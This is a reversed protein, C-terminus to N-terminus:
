GIKMSTHCPGDAKAAAPAPHAQKFKDTRVKREGVRIPVAWNQRAMLGFVVLWTLKIPYNSSDLLIYSILFIFICSLIDCFCKKHGTTLISVIFWRLLLSPMSWSSIWDIKLFLLSSQRIFVLCTNHNIFVCPIRNRVLWNSLFALM